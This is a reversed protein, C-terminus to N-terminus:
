KRNKAPIMHNQITGNDSIYVLYTQIESPKVLEFCDPHDVIMVIQLDEKLVIRKSNMLQHYTDIQDMNLFGIWYYGEMELELDFPFYPFRKNMRESFIGLKRATKIPINYQFIDEWNFLETLVYLLKESAKAYEQYPTSFLFHADEQNANVLRHQFQPDKVKSFVYTVPNGCPMFTSFQEVNLYTLREIDFLREVRKQVNKAQFRKALFQLFLDLRVPELARVVSIIEDGSRAIQISKNAKATM